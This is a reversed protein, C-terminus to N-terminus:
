LEIRVNTHTWYNYSYRNSSSPGNIQTIELLEYFRPRGNLNFFHATPKKLFFFFLLALQENFIYCLFTTPDLKPASGNKSWSWSWGFTRFLVPSLRYPSGLPKSMHHFLFCWWSEATKSGQNCCLFFVKRKMESM